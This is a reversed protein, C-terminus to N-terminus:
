VFMIVGFHSSHRLPFLTLLPQTVSSVMQTLTTGSPRESSTVKLQPGLFTCSGIIHPPPLLAFASLLFSQTHRLFLFSAGTAPPLSHCPSCFSSAPSTTLTWVVCLGTSESFNSNLELLPQYVNFFKLCSHKTTIRMQVKKEQAHAFRQTYTNKM